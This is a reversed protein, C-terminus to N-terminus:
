LDGRELPMSMCRPGGRGRSLESGSLRLVHLGAEELVRNTVTNRDYAFVTGPRLCLTNSGDNWQERTSVIGNGGGCLLLRIRDKCLLRRLVQELSEELKEVTYTGPGTKSLEYLKIVPLIGPHVVFCDSDVQTLVTDLHMSARTRPIEVALVTTFSDTEERFLAEALQEVAEPRTRQSLGVAVVQPSLVLIDGGEMNFCNDRDMYRPVDRYLPHRAFVTHGYLTERRRTEFHMRHLTVGSGISAFTDRTFYLNPMPPVIFRERSGILSSLRSGSPYGLESALVGSMSRLVMERTSLSNFYETLAERCNRADDGAEEIFTRIFEARAEPGTELAEATLDELYLVEVGNERLMAAFGDHEKRAQEPYPIDEFLLEEMTEPSLHELERGPRHLLVKKLPGTESYVHIPM